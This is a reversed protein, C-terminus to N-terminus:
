PRISAPPVFVALEAPLVKFLAPTKTRVDGDLDLSMPRKTELTFEKLKFSQIDPIQRHQGKFLAPLYKLGKKWDQTTTCVVDLLGDDITAGEEAIFGTGYYRGNCVSIQLTKFQRSTEGESKIFVTFPRVRKAVKFAYFVYALAGFYKKAKPHIWHSVQTSLGL